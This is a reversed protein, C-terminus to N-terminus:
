SKRTLELLPKELRNRIAAVAEPSPDLFHVRVAEGPQIDLTLTGPTFTILNSLVLIEVPSRVETPIEVTGPSVKMKPTLLLRAIQLNAITFDAVYRVILKLLATAKM